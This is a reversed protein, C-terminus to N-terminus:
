DEGKTKKIKKLEDVLELGPIDVKKPLDVTMKLKPHFGIEYRKNDVYFALVGTKEKYKYTPM